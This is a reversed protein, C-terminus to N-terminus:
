IFYVSQFTIKQSIQELWGRDGRYQKTKDGTVLRNEDRRNKYKKKFKNTATRFQRDTESRLM